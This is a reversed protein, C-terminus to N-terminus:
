LNAKKATQVILPSFLTLCLAITILHGLSWLTHVSAGPTVTNSSSIVEDYAARYSHLITTNKSLNTRQLDEVAKPLAPARRAFSEGIPIKPNAVGCVTILKHLDAGGAYAKLAVAAGASEGILVVKKGDVEARRIAAEVRQLKPQLGPESSWNMPVLETSIKYLFPWTKLARIRINDYGDGLGPIYIIHYSNHM